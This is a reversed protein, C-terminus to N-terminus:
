IISLQNSLYQGELKHIRAVRLLRKPGFPIGQSNGQRPPIEVREFFIRILDLEHVRLIYLVYIVTCIFVYVIEYVRACRHAYWSATILEM